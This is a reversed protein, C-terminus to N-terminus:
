QYRNELLMPSCDERKRGFCMHGLLITTGAANIYYYHFADLSHSFRSADSLIYGQETMHRRIIDSVMERASMTEKRPLNPVFDLDIDVSLRPLNFITMNIATGGKLLLHEKM